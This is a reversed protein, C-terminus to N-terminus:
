RHLLVWPVLLGFGAFRVVLHSFASWSNIKLWIWRYPFCEDVIVFRLILCFDILSYPILVLQIAIHRLSHVCALSLFSSQQYFCCFDPLSGACILLHPSFVCLRLVLIAPLQSAHCSSNAWSTATLHLHGLQCSNSMRVALCSAWYSGGGSGRTVQNNFM